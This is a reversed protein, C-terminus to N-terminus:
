TSIKLFSVGYTSKNIGYATSALYCPSWFIKVKAYFSNSGSYDNTCIQPSCSYIMYQTCDSFFTGPKEHAQFNRFRSKGPKRIKITALLSCCMCCTVSPNNHLHLQPYTIHNCHHCFELFYNPTFHLSIPTYLLSQVSVMGFHPFSISWCLPYCLLM